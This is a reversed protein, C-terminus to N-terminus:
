KKDLKIAQLEVTTPEEALLRICAETKEAFILAKATLNRFKLNLSQM